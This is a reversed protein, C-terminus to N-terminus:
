NTEIPVAHSNILWQSITDAAIRHAIENPHSDLGPLVQLRTSELRKYRHLLDLFPIAESKLLDRIKKHCELFPYSKDLPHSFLPFVVAVFSINNEALLKKIQQISDKFRNYTTPNSFLQSYYELYQTRTQSNVIREIVFKLSRWYTFIPNTLRVKGHADLYPHTVRYPALEPDNLTIQLLVLDPNVRKYNEKLLELEQVTSYGRVGFNLVSFKNKENLHNLIRNVRAPYADDQHMEPGFTFSDGLAIIRIENERKSQLHLALSQPIERHELRMEQTTPRDNIQRTEPISESIRIAIEFSLLAFFIGFFICGTKAVTEVIKPHISQNM